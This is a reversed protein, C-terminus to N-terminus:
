DNDKAFVDDEIEPEEVEDIVDPRNKFENVKFSRIKNGSTIDHLHFVDGEKRVGISGTAIGEYEKTSLGLISKIPREFIPNAIPEALHYHTWNTGRLGGTTVTDFLGGKDPELNRANIMEGNKVRGRSMGIIDKDTLPSATLKGGAL